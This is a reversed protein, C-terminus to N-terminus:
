EGPVVAAGAIPKRRPRRVVAMLPREVFTYFLGAASIGMVTIALYHLQWPITLGAETMAPVALRVWFAVVFLHTLYFAYSWDGLTALIRSRFTLLGLSAYLIMAVPVGWLIPRASGPDLEFQLLLAVLALLGLVLSAARNRGQGGEWLQWIFIGFAFEIIIPDTYFRAVPHSPSFLAGALVALLLVATTGILRRDGFVGAAIAVLAYFAIEYNLTWGVLLLPAMGAGDREMPLFLLSHTLREFDM